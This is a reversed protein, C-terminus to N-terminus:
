WPITHGHPIVPRRQSAQAAVFVAAVPTEVDPPELQFRLAPLPHISTNALLLLLGDLASAWYRTTGRCLIRRCEKGDKPM